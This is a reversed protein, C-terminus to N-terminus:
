SLSAVAGASARRADARRAPRLRQGVTNIIDWPPHHFLWGGHSRVPSDIKFTVHQCGSFVANKLDTNSSAETEKPSAPPSGVDTRTSRVHVRLLVTCSKSQIM